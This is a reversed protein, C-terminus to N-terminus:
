LNEICDGEFRDYRFKTRQCLNRSGLFVNKNSIKIINPLNSQVTENGFLVDVYPMAEMLPDKYFQPIFPASLNMLFPRDRELAKKAVQIIATPNVTM